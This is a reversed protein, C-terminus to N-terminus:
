LGSGRIVAPLTRALIKADLGLSWNDIYQLDLEIWRGAPSHPRSVQWLGTIGPKVSFRRLLWPEHISLDQVSMPRPGVFSMHGALVNILQPIQSLGTRTLFAGLPTRSHSEIGPAAHRMVRFQYLHFRRRGLGYREQLYFVPGPSTVMVLAAIPLFLPWLLVFALLAFLIDFLRKLLLRDDQPFSGIFQPSLSTDRSTKAPSSAPFIDDPYRVNVGLRTCTDVVQEIAQYCSRAPLAVFVEDVVQTLLYSELGSVNGIYLAAIEGSCISKDVTDFFGLLTHSRHLQTRLYRYTRLARPGSGVILVRRPELLASTFRRSIRAILRVVCLATFSFLAFVLALHLAPAGKHTQTFSFNLILATVGVAIAIRLVQSWSRLRSGSHLRCLRMLLAWAAFVAAARFLNQVTLRTELFDRLNFSLTLKDAYCLSAVLAFAVLAGDVIAVGPRASSPVPNQM